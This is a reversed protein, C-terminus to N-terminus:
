LEIIHCTSTRHSAICEVSFSNVNAAKFQRVNHNGDVSCWLAGSLRLSSQCFDIIIFFILPCIKLVSNKNSARCNDTYDIDNSFSTFLM